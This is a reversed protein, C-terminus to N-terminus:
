PFQLFASSPGPHHLLELALMGFLGDAWIERRTAVCHCPGTLPGSERPRPSM